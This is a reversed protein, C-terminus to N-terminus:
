GLDFGVVEVLVYYYVVFVIEYWELCFLEVLLVGECCIELLMVGVGFLDVVCCNIEVVDGVGDVLNM